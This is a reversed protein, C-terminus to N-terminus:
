EVAAATRLCGSPMCRLLSSTTISHPISALSCMISSTNPECKRSYLELAAGASPRALLLPMLKASLLKARRRAGGSDRAPAIPLLGSRDEMVEM